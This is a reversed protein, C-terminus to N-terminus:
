KYFCHASDRFQKEWYNDGWTHWKEPCSRHSRFAICGNTTDGFIFVYECALITEEDVVANKYIGSSYVSFQGKSTLVETLTM